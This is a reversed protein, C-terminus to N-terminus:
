GYGLRLGLAGPRAPSVRAAAFGDSISVCAAEMGEVASQQMEIASPGQLDAAEAELQRLRERLEVAQVFLVRAAM